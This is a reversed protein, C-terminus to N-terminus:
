REARSLAHTIAAQPYFFFVGVSRPSSYLRHCFTKRENKHLNISSTRVKTVSGALESIMSFIRVMSAEFLLGPELRIVYNTSIFFSHHKQTVRLRRSAIDISTM